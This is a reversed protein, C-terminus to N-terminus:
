MYWAWPDPNHCLRSKPIPQKRCTPHGRHCKYWGHRANLLFTWIYFDFCVRIESQLFGPNWGAWFVNFFDNGNKVELSVVFFVTKKPSNGEVVHSRFMWINVQASVFFLKAVRRPRKRFFFALPSFPGGCIKSRPKTPGVPPVSRRTQSITWIYISPCPCTFGNTAWYARLIWIHLLIEPNGRVLGIVQPHSTAVM